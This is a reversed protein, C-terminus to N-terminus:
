SHRPATARQASLFCSRENRTALSAPLAISLFPRSFHSVFSLRSSVLCTRQFPGSSKQVRPFSSPFPPHRDNAMKGRRNKAALYSVPWGLLWDSTSETIVPAIITWNGYDDDEDSSTAAISYRRRRRRRRRRRDILVTRKSSVFRVCDANRRVKSRNQSIDFSTVLNTSVM